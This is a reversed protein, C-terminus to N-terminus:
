AQASLLNAWVVSPRELLGRRGLQLWWRGDRHHAETVLVFGQPSEPDYQEGPSLDRYLVHATSSGERVEGLVIIQRQPSEDRFAGADASPDHVALAIRALAGPSTAALFRVLFDAPALDELERFSSRVEWEALIQPLARAEGARVTEHAAANGGPRIEDSGAAARAFEEDRRLRRLQAEKFSELSDPHVLPVVDTWRQAELAAAAARVVDTASQPESTM